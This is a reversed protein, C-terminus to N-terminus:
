RLELSAADHFSLNLGENAAVRGVSGDASVHFTGANASSVRVTDDGSQGDISLPSLLARHDGATGLIDNGAGGKVTTPMGTILTEVTFTDDSTGLEISLQDVNTLRVGNPGMGLGSVVADSGNGSLQGVSGTSNGRDSVTVSDTGATGTIKLFGAIGSTMDASNGIQVANVGAGPNVSTTVNEQTSHVSVNDNGSGLNIQLESLNSYQVSRSLGFGTIQAASVVGANPITDGSDDLWLLDTGSGGDVIVTSDIRNLTGNVNTDANAQSGLHIRDDTEFTRITTTGTTSLNRISVVDAQAGTEILVSSGKVFGKLTVEGGNGNDADTATSDAFMTVGSGALLQSNTETVIRDGATLTVSGKLAQIVGTNDVILDQGPNQADPVAINIGGTTSIVRYVHLAGSRDELSISGKAVADLALNTGRADIPLPSEAGISGQAANLQIKDATLVVGTSSAAKEISGAAGINVISNSGSAFLGNLDVSGTLESIHFENRVSGAILTAPQSIPTGGLAVRPATTRIPSSASGVSGSVANLTLVPSEITASSPVLISGGSTTLSTTGYRNVVDDLLRIDGVSEIFIDTPGTTTSIVPQWGSSNPSSVTINSNFTSTGNIVDIQNLTLTRSSRNYIEVRDFNTQFLIRPAGSITATTSAFSSNGSDYYSTPILLRIRGAFSAGQNIIDGVVIESGTLQEVTVNRQPPVINGNADIELYPSRPGLLSVLGNIEITRHLGLSQSVSEDGVDIFAGDRQTVVAIGPRSPVAAEVLLDRTRLQTEPGAFVHTNTQLSNSSATTTDGGLGKTRAASDAKTDLGFQTGRISLSNEGTLVASGSISVNSNTTTSVGATAHSKAGLAKSTSNAVADEDARQTSSTIRVNEGTLRANGSVNVLSNLTRNTEATSRTSVGLGGSDAGASALAADNVTAGVILNGDSRVTADGGINTQSTSTGNTTTRARAIQIVAGGNSQSYAKADSNQNAQVTVSQTGTLNLHGDLSVTSSGDVTTVADADGVSIFGFAGNTSDSEVHLHSHTAVTLSGDATMNGAAALDGGHLQVGVDPSAKLTADNLKIGVIAGNAGRSTVRSTPDSTGFQNAHVSNSTATLSINGDATMNVQGDIITRSAPALNVQANSFGVDVVGGSYGESLATGQIVTDASVAINTGAHFVAGSNVETSVSPAVIVDTGAGQVSIVGGGSGESHTQAAGVALANIVISSGATLDANGITTRSSRRGNKDNLNTARASDASLNTARALGSLSDTQVTSGSVAIAEVDGVAIIGATVGRADASVNDFTRSLI